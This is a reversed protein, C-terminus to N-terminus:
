FLDPNDSASLMAYDFSVFQDPEYDFNLFVHSFGFIKATGITAGGGAAAGAGGIADLDAPYNRSM